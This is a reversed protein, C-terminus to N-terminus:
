RGAAGAPLSESPSARCVRFGVNFYRNVPRDDYRVSARLFGPNFNWSGGRLVRRSDPEASKPDAPQNDRTYVSLTWEWASGATDYLGFHNPAYSGAPAIRNEFRADCGDCNARPPQGPQEKPLEPGWWFAAEQSGPRGPARAAYEWEEETPLRWTQGTLKSLWETYAVADRQSVYVVPINDPRWNWDSMNLALEPYSPKKSGASATRRRQWVAYDYEALTVEFQGFATCPEPMQRLDVRRWAEDSGCKIGEKDDRGPKCGYDFAGLPIDVTRPIPPSRWGWRLTMVLDLADDTALWQAIATRLPYQVVLGALLLASVWLGTVRALAPRRASKLYALEAESAMFRVADYRRLQRRDPGNLLRDAAGTTPWAEAEQRLNQRLLDRDKHAALYEVLRPWYPQPQGGAPGPPRSRLLAEHILDVRRTDAGQADATSGSVTILRLRAATDAAERRQGSLAGLLQQGRALDADQFGQGAQRCAQLWTLSQRTHRGEPHFHALASLLELAGRQLPSRADGLGALLRDAESALLGGLRGLADYEALTLVGPAGRPRRLWLTEMAHQLLPLAAAPDDEADDLLAQLLEPQVTLRGLRAPATIAQALGARGMPTLTFPSTLTNLLGALLPLDEAIRHQYDSRCTSVLHLPSAPATLAETLLLDLRARANASSLTFLEEFQDIVLLVGIPRQGLADRLWLRLTEPPGQRLKDLLDLSKERLAPALVEALSVLPDNGPLMPATVAWDDLGTRASLAGQEALPLLGARMLSSKGSGSGGVIHLWRRYPASSGALAQAPARKAELLAISPIDPTRGLLNLAALVERERGFFRRAQEKQFSALGVWPCVDPPLLAEAPPGDDALVGLRALPRTLAEILAEPPAAAAEEWRVGQLLGLFPLTALDPAGPLLVPVIQPREQPEQAGFHRNLVTSTEAGVWRGLGQPGLLVVFRRCGQLAEGLADLWRDSARLSADDKFVTLGRALLARHLLDAQALHTARHYSIFVEPRQPEGMFKGETKPPM